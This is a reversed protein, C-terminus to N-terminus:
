VKGTTPGPIVVESDTNSDLEIMLAALLNTAFLVCAGAIATNYRSSSIGTGGGRVAQYGQTKHASTTHPLTTHCIYERLYGGGVCRM